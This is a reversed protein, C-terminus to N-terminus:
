GSKTVGLDSQCKSIMISVERSRLKAFYRYFPWFKYQDVLYYVSSATGSAQPYINLSTQAPFFAFIASFPGLRSFVRGVPSM